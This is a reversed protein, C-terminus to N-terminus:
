SNSRYYLVHLRVVGVHVPGLDESTEVTTLVTASTNALNSAGETGVTIAIKRTDEDVVTALDVLQKNGHRWDVPYAIVIELDREVQEAVTDTVLPPSTDPLWRASFHRLCSAPNAVAWERIPEQETHEVFPQGTDTTPSLTTVLVAIRDRIAAPTTSM